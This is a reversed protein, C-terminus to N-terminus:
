LVRGSTKRVSRKSVTETALVSLAKIPQWSYVKVIFGEPGVPNLDGQFCISVRASQAHTDIYNGCPELDRLGRLKM